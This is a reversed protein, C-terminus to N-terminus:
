DKEIQIFRSLIANRQVLCLAYDPDHEITNMCARCYYDLFLIYKEEDKVIRSCRVCSFM